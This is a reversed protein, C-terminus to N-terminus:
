RIRGCLHPALALLEFSRLGTYAAITIGHAHASTPAKQALRRVEAKTLYVEVENNPKKLKLRASLNDALVGTEFAHALAGKLVNLRSNRTSQALGTRAKLGAQAVEVAQTATTAPKLFPGWQNAKNVRDRHHRQPKRDLWSQVVDKLLVDPSRGLADSGFLDRRIRTEHERAQSQTVGPPERKHVRHGHPEFEIAYRQRGRGDVDVAGGRIAGARPGGRPSQGSAPGPV